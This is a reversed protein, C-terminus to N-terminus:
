SEADRRVWLSEDADAPQGGQVASRNKSRNQDREKLKYNYWREHANLLHAECTNGWLHGLFVGELCYAM